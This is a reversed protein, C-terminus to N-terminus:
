QLKIKKRCAARFASAAQAKLGQARRVPLQMFIPMRETRMESKPLNRQFRQIVDGRGASRPSPFPSPCQM